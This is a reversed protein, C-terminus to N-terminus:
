ACMLEVLIKQITAWVQSRPDVIEFHGTELTVLEVQEGSKKKTDFYGQSIEFPVSDDLTGHVVKQRAQKISLEMPSAERYHIPVELASGGLFEAVANNSLHLEWGRRLDLVGALSLVGMVSKEVAALCLALQGGASHGAVCTRTLDFRGTHEHTGNQLLQYAARIDDFTGPWGGGPNGLRRYEVNWSAIGRTKLAACLHGAYILDYKKRWYGGHIFFVVPHPGNGAPVYVDAFQNADPGYGIRVDPEPPTVAFIWESDVRPTYILRLSWDSRRLEM